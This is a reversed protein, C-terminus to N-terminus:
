SAGGEAVALYGECAAETRTMWVTRFSVTCGVLAHDRRWELYQAIASPGVTGPKPERIETAAVTRGDCAARCDYGVLVHDGSTTATM